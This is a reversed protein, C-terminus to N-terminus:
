FLPLLAEGEKLGNKICFPDSLHKGVQLTNYTENLCAKILSVLKIPIGSGFRVRLQILPRRSMLLYSIFQWVTSVSKRLYTIFASCVTLLQCTGVFGVGIIGLLTTQM